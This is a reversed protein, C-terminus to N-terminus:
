HRTDLQRNPGSINLGLSNSASFSGQVDVILHTAVETYICFSGDSALPVVSLNAIDRGGVFNGNSKGDKVRTATACDRDATIYGGGTPQTMTLNVLAYPTGAPLGTPVRTTSGATPMAKGRTDFRNSSASGFKMSGTPAFRGQVDAIVNVPTKTFICFKGDTDIRVVALNAINQGVVYNGNSFQKDANTDAQLTSCRDATIYGAADAETMTLNV